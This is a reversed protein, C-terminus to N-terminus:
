TVVLRDLCEELVRVSLVVLFNEGGQPLTPGLRAGFRAPLVQGDRDLEPEPSRTEYREYATPGGIYDAQPPDRAAAMSPLARMTPLFYVERARCAPRVTCREGFQRVSFPVLRPADWKPHCAWATPAPMNVLDANLMAARRKAM